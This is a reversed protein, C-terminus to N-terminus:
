APLPTLSQLGSPVIANGLTLQKYADEVYSLSESMTLLDAVNAKTLIRVM